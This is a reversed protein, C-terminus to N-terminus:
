FNPAFSLSKDKTEVWLRVEKTQGSKEVDNSDPFPQYPSLEVVVIVGSGAKPPSSASEIRYSKIPGYYGAPGWDEMFDKMDYHAPDAKWLQYAAQPNGATLTSFFHRAVNREPVHLYGFWLYWGGGVLIIVAAVAMLVYRRMRSRPDESTGDLLGGM